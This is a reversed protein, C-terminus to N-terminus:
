LAETQGKAVLQELDLYSPDEVVKAVVMVVLPYETEAVKRGKASPRYGLHSPNEVVKAVV